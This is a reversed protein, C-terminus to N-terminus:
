DKKLLDAFTKQFKAVKPAVVFTCYGAHPNHEFYRQHYAEAPHYNALPRM